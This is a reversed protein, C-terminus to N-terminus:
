RDNSCEKQIDESFRLTKTTTLQKIQKRPCVAIASVSATITLTSKEDEMIIAFVVDWILTPRGVMGANRVVM